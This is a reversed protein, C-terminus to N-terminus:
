LVSLEEQSMLPAANFSSATLDRYVFTRGFTLRTLTPAALAGHGNEWVDCHDKPSPTTCLGGLSYASDTLGM